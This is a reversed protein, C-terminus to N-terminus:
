NGKLNVPKIEKCDLPSELSKQLVLTWFCWNKPAWSVKHDLEWMQIHSRSLGYSQSYLGKNAFHHRQKKIHQRPKDCIKNWPAVGKLKMAATVMWLSKLDWPFLTQWQKWKGHLSPVPHLSWRKKFALNWTLKLKRRRWGWWSARIEEESEAMLTIDDTYRM